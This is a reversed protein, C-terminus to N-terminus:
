FLTIDMRHTSHSTDGVKMAKAWLRFIAEATKKTYGIPNRPPIESDPVESKLSERIRAMEIGMVETGYNLKICKRAKPTTGGVRISVADALWGDIHDYTYGSAYFPKTSSIGDRERIILTARSLPTMATGAIWTPAGEPMFSAANRGANINGRIGQAVKAASVELLFKTERHAVAISKVAVAFPDLEM